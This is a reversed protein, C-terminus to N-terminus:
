YSNLTFNAITQRRHLDHYKPEVLPNCHVNITYPYIDNAVLIVM